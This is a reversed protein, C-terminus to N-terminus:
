ARAWATVNPSGYPRLKGGAMKGKPNSSILADLAMASSFRLWGQSCDTANVVDSRDSGIRLPCLLKVGACKAKMEDPLCHIKVLWRHEVEIKSVAPAGWARHDREEDV